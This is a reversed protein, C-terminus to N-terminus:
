CELIPDNCSVDNTPGDLALVPNRSTSRPALPVAPAARGRPARGNSATGDRGEHLDQPALSAGARGAARGHQPIPSCLNQPGHSTAGALQRAQRAWLSQTCARDCVRRAPLVGPWDRAGGLGSRQGRLPTTYVCHPVLEQRVGWAPRQARRPDLKSQAWSSLPRSESEASYLPHHTVRNFDGLLRQGDTLHCRKRRVTTQLNFSDPPTPTGGAPSVTEGWFRKNM